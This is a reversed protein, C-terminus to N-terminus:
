SPGWARRYTAIIRVGAAMMELELWSRAAIENGTAKHRGHWRGTEDQWVDFEPIDTVQPYADTHAPEKVM